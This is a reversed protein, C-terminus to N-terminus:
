YSDLNSASSYVRYRYTSNNVKKDGQKQGAEVEVAIQKLIEAMDEKTSADKVIISINM